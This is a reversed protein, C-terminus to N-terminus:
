PTSEDENIEIIDSDSDSKKQGNEVGNQMGLGPVAPESYEPEKPVNITTVPREEEVEKVLAECIKDVIGKLVSM